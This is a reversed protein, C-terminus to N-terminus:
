LKDIIKSLAIATEKRSFKLIPTKSNRLKVGKNWKNYNNLIFSTILPIETSEFTSNLKQKSLLNAAESNCDGIMLIPKCTAMYELTKGSLMTSKGQQIYLFNILLNAQYMLNIADIHSLYGRYDTEMIKNFEKLIEPAIEGSLIIKIKAKPNISKFKNISKLLSKYPHNNTLLGTFVLQFKKTSIEKKNYFLKEDYGNYIKFFNQKVSIKSQLKEHFNKSVTTLIGDAKLLVNSELSLDKNISFPFRHFSKLYFLEGWPDRFDALWNIEMKSKVYLGVLHTSHPPGTTILTRIKNKKIIELAIKKSKEAWGVRADPIFFNGRIFGAFYDLLGSKKYEGQPIVDKKNKFSKIRSYLNVWSFSKVFYTPLDKVHENFSDDLIPYSANKSNITLIIPSYGLEKLNKAFYVWRQVGSGGSPPWYYTIILIRNKVM